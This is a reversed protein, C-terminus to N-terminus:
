VPFNLKDALAHRADAAFTPQTLWLVPTHASDYLIGAFGGPTTRALNAWTYDVTYGPSRVPLARALSDPLSMAPGDCAALPVPAVPATRPVGRQPSFTSSCALLTVGSAARLLWIVNMDQKTMSFM